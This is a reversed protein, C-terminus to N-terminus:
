IFHGLIEEGWSFVLEKKWYKKMYKIESITKNEILHEVDRVSVHNALFQNKAFAIAQDGM